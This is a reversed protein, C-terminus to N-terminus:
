PKRRLLKKKVDPWFESSLNVLWDIGIQTSGETLGLKLTNDREPYWQNSIFAAGYASGLRWTALTEKGSDERTLITGRFVQRMRHWLGGEGARQYRPDQRLVTDLGLGLANRVGTYALSSGLREGYGEARQGWEKPFNIEQLFGDYAAIGVLAEPGYASSAHFELKTRWGSPELTQSIGSAAFGCSLFVIPLLHRMPPLRRQIGGGSRQLNLTITEESALEGHVQSGV